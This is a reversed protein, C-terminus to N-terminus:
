CYSFNTIAPHCARVAGWFRVFFGPAALVPAPICGFPAKTTVGM